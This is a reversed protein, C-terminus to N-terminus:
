GHHALTEIEEDELLRSSQKAALFIRDVCSNRTDFGRAVRAIPRSSPLVDRRTEDNPLFPGACGCRISIALTIRPWSSPAM